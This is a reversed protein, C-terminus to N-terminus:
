EFDEYGLVVGKANCLCWDDQLKSDIILMDYSTIKITKYERLSHWDNNGDIVFVEDVFENLNIQIPAKYTSKPLDQFAWYNTYTPKYSFYNNSCKYGEVEVFQGYLTINGHKDLFCLKNNYGILANIINNRVRGRIGQLQYLYDKIFLQTDSLNYPNEKETYNSTVSLIGNHAVGINTIVESKQLLRENNTIPFPHTGKGDRLGHTAIRFHYVISSTKPLDKVANYYDEFKMFGKKIHVKNNLNYMVGAGDPNTKWAKALFEKTPKEQNQFKTIIVCM